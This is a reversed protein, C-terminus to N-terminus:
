PQRVPRLWAHSQPHFIGDLRVEDWAEGEGLVAVRRGSDAHAIDPHTVEMAPLGLDAGTLLAAENWALVLAQRYLARVHRPSPWRRGSRDTFEFDLAALAGERAQATGSGVYRGAAGPSARLAGSLSMQRLARLTLFVDREAQLRLDQDLGEVLLDVHEAVAPGLEAVVIFDAARQTAAQGALAAAALDGEIEGLESEIYVKALRYADRRMLNRTRESGPRRSSGAIQMFTGRLAELFLSYRQAARDAILTLQAANM